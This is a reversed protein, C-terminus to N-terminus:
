YEYINENQFYIEGSNPTVHYSRDDFLLVCFPDKVNTIECTQAIGNNKLWEVIKQKAHYGFSARATLIKVDWGLAIIEKVLAIMHEIPRGVHNLGNTATLYIALTSDFDFGIWPKQCRDLITLGYENECTSLNTYFPQINPCEPFIHLVKDEVGEHKFTTCSAVHGHKLTDNHKFLVPNYFPYVSEYKEVTEKYNPILDIPREPRM